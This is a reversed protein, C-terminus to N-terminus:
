AVPLHLHFPTSVYPFDHLFRDVGNATSIGGAAPFTSRTAAATM